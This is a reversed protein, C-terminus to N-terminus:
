VFALFAFGGQRYRINKDHWVQIMLQDVRGLENGCAKCCVWKDVVTLLGDEEEFGALCKLGRYVGPRIPHANRIVRLREEMGYQADNM